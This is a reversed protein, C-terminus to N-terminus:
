ESKKPPPPVIKAQRLYRKDTVAGTTFLHYNHNMAIVLLLGRAISCYRGVLLHRVGRPNLFDMGVIYSGDAVTACCPNEPAELLRVSPAFDMVEM